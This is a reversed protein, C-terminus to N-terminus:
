MVEFTKSDLEVQTVHEFPEFKVYVGNVTVKEGAKTFRAVANRAGRETAYWSQKFSNCYSSHLVLYQIFEIKTEM